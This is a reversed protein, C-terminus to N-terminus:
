GIVVYANARRSPLESTRIRHFLQVSTNARGGAKMLEPIRNLPFCAFARDDPVLAYSAFGDPYTLHVWLWGVQSRIQEGWLVGMGLCLDQSEPAARAGSRVEDIFAGIRRALEDPPGAVDLVRLATQAVKEMAEREEDTLPREVPTLALAKVVRESPAPPPVRDSIPESLPKAPRRPAPAARRKSTQRKKKPAPSRRKKKPAPASRKKAPRKTKRELKKARPRAKSPMVDLYAICQGGVM